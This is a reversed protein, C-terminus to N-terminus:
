KLWPEFLADMAHNIRSFDKDQWMYNTGLTQKLEQNNPKNCLWTIYSSVFM